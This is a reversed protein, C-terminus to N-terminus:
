NEKGCSKCKKGFLSLKGGCYGCLGESAWKDQQEKRKREEEERQQKERQQKEKREQEERRQREIRSNREKEEELRQMEDTFVAIDGRQIYEYKSDKDESLLVGLNFKNKSEVNKVEYCKGTRLIKFKVGLGFQGVHCILPRIEDFVKNSKVWHKGYYGDLWEGEEILSTDDIIMFFTFKEKLEEIRKKIENNYGELRARYTEDAFRIAKQYYANDDFPMYNRALDEEKKIESAFFENEELSKKECNKYLDACLKGVYAPAYEPNIDLVKDFFDDASRGRYYLVGDELALYGRKMLSELNAINSVEVTGTIEQAKAKMRDKTHKTGCADCVAFDGSADMSLSGGCIDCSIAAM